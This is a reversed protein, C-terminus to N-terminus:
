EFFFLSPCFLSQVDRLITHLVPDLSPLEGGLFILHLVEGLFHIRDGMSNHAATYSQSQKRERARSYCSLVQEMNQLVHKMNKPEADVSPLLGFIHFITSWILYFLISFLYVNIEQSLDRFKKEMM